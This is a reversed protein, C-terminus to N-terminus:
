EEKGQIETKIWYWNKWRTSRKNQKMEVGHKQDDSLIEIQYCKSHKYPNPSSGLSRQIYHYDNGRREQIQRRTQECPFLLSCGEGATGNIRPQQLAAIEQTRKADQEKGITGIHRV